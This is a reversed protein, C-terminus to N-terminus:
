VREAARALAALGEKFSHIISVRTRGLRTCCRENVQTILWRAGLDQEVHIGYYRTDQEFRLPVWAAPNEPVALLRRV